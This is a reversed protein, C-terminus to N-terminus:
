FCGGSLNWLFAIRLIERFEFSFMQTPTEKKSLDQLNM